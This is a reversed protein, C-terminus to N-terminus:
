LRRLFSTKAREAVSGVFGLLFRLKQELLQLRMRENLKKHVYHVLMILLALKQQVLFISFM